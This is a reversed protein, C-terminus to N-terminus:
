GALVRGAFWYLGIAFLCAAALSPAWASVRAGGWRRVAWGLALAAAIVTLQALEVGINFGALASILRQRPLELEGLAGAFGCGHILGFISALWPTANPGRPFGHPYAFVFLALGLWVLMSLNTWHLIAAGAAACLIAAIWPAWARMRAAGEGDAELAVFAITFGILAEITGSDPRIVNLAALGLTLTHGLTFGTAALIVVRLRGGSLLLLSLIFAVHDLGGWVHAAGIPIFSSLAQWITQAAPEVRPELDARPRAEILVAEARAAGVGELSAFHLHSPAVDHFMRSEITIPGRALAGPSCSFRWTANVRGEGGTQARPAGVPTCARSAASAILNAGVENAFTDNLSAQAGDAYLRTVDLAAAEVRVDLADGRITWHSASQSRTHASAPAAMALAAAAVLWRIM